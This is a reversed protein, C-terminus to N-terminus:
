NGSSFRRATSHRLSVSPSKSARSPAPLRISLSCSHPASRSRRRLLRSFDPGVLLRALHPILLGVWGVIGSISVAAATMLTAGAIVAVRVATANVGLSRAEEDGLALVNVRWRLLVLPIVGLAIAPLASALDGPTTSALSGLLWFTIASMPPAWVSWVKWTSRDPSGRTSDERGAVTTSM